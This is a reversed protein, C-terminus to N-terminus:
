DRASLCCFRLLYSVLKAAQCMAKKEAQFASLLQPLRGGLAGCARQLLAEAQQTGHQAWDDFALRLTAEALFAAAVHREHREEGLLLQAMADWDSLSPAERWLTAVLREALQYHGEAFECLFELLVELHRQGSAGEPLEMLGEELVFRNM